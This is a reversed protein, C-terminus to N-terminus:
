KVRKKLKIFKEKLKFYNYESIEELGKNINVLAEKKNKIQLYIRALEYYCRSAYVSSNNNNLFNKLYLIAAEYDNLGAYALGWYYFKRSHRKLSKYKFLKIIENYKNLQLYSDALHYRFYSSYRPELELSKIFLDIAEKHFGASAKAQGYSDLVFFNEPFRKILKEYLKFSEEFRELEHYFIHAKDELSDVDEPKSKLIFDLCDMATEPDGCYHITRALERNVIYFNRRKFYDSFILDLRYFTFSEVPLPFYNNNEMWNYFVKLETKYNDKIYVPVIELFLEEEVTYAYDEADFERTYNWRGKRSYIINKDFNHAAEHILTFMAKIKLWFFVINLAPTKKGKLEYGYIDIVSRYHYWVGFCESAWIGPYQKERKNNRDLKIRIEKLRYSMTKPLKNMIYNIDNDSLPLFINDGDEKVIKYNMEAPDALFRDLKKGGPLSEDFNQKKAKRYQRIQKKMFRKRHIEFYINRCEKNLSEIEEPTSDENELAKSYKKGAEIYDRHTHHRSRSM